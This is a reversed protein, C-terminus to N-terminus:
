SSDVLGEDLIIAFTWGLLSAGALLADATMRASPPLESLDHPKIGPAFVLAKGRHARGGLWYRARPGAQLNRMWRSRSGRLTGIFVCGDFATAIVPVRRPQASRAGITELVILGTPFLPSSGWGAMLWPEAFANVIRFFETEARAWSSAVGIM